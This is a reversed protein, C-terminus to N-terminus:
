NKYVKKCTQLTIIKKDNIKRGAKILLLIRLSMMLTTCPFNQDCLTVTMVLVSGGATQYVVWIEVVQYCVPCSVQLTLFLNPVM